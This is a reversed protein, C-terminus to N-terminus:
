AGREWGILPAPTRDAQWDYPVGPCEYWATGMDAWEIGWRHGIHGETNSCKRWDM